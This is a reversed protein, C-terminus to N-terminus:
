DLMLTQVLEHRLLGSILHLPGLESDKPTEQSSNCQSTASPFPSLETSCLPSVASPLTILQKEVGRGARGFGELWLQGM